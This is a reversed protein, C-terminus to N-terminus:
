TTSQPAIAPHAGRLRLENFGLWFVFGAEAILHGIGLWSATGFGICASILCLAAWVLNASGLFAVRAPIPIPQIVLAFAFAAYLLGAAGM